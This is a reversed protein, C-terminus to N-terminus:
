VSQANNERTSNDSKPGNGQMYQYPIKIQNRRGFLMMALYRLIVLQGDFRYAINDARTGSLSPPMNNIFNLLSSSKM